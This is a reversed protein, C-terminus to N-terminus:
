KIDEMIEETAGIQTLIEQAEKILADFTHNSAEIFRKSDETPIGMKVLSSEIVRAHVQKLIMKQNETLIYKNEM